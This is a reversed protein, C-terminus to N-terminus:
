DLFRAAVDPTPVLCSERVGFWHYRNRAVLDYLRDRLGRPLLRLLRGLLPWPRRLAAAIRIVADSRLLVQEGDVVAFTKFDGTPLGHRRALRQGIPSQLAAFRLRAETDRRITFGVGGVCLRCVGDFLVVVELPRPPALWGTYRALPGILPLAVAVDFRYLCEPATIRAEFRPWCPRPLPLGLVRFGAIQLAIGDALPRPRMAVCTGLARESLVDGDLGVRSAFGGRGFRRVWREGARVPLFRVEVPLDRGSAPLGMLLGILRALRGRGREVAGRGIAVRAGVPGHMQRIALPLEAFAPGLARIFPIQESM